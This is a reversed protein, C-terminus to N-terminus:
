ILADSGDTDYPRGIKSFDGKVFSHINIFVIFALFGLFILCCIVDTCSRNSVPGHRLEESIELKNEDSM